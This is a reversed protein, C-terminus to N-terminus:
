WRESSRNLRGDDSYSTQQVSGGGGSLSTRLLVAYDNVSFLFEGREALQELEALWADVRGALQPRDRATSAVGDVMTRALSEPALSTEPVIWAFTDPLELRAARAVSRLRRGLTGDSISMWGQTTDAYAHVLREPSM